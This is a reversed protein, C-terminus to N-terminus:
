KFFIMRFYDNPRIQHTGQRRSVSHLWRIFYFIRAYLNGHVQSLFARQNPLIKNKFNLVADKSLSSGGIHHIIIPKPTYIVKLKLHYKIFYCWQVDEFYMFFDEHLQQNPFKKIVSIPLLFFAGWIWDTETSKSYDWLDGHLRKSKKFKSEFKYWRFCEALENQLSPFRGTVPQQVGNPYILQGTLVGIANDSHAIKVAELIANNVLETDSNLLLIYEGRAQSIGLNNGKAFGGNEISKVLLIEPFEKKFIDPNCESSGNDVLIIEFTIGTTKEYISRICNTTLQRTNFNVIIISVTMQM